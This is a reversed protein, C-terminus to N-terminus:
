FGGYAGLCGGFGGLLLDTCHRRASSTADQEGLARSSVRLVRGGLPHGPIKSTKMWSVELARLGGNQLEPSGRVEQSSRPRLKVDRQAVELRGLRVCSSWVQCSLAEAFNDDLSRGPSELWQEPARPKGQGGSVEKSVAQCRRPGGPSSISWFAFVFFRVVFRHVYCWRQDCQFPGSPQDLERGDLKALFPKQLRLRCRESSKGARRRTEPFLRFFERAGRLAKESIKPSKRPRRKNKEYSPSINIKEYSYRRIKVNHRFTSNQNM